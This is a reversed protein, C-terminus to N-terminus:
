TRVGGIVGATGDTTVVRDRGGRKALYLAADAAAVLEPHQLMQAGREAVGISATVRAASGPVALDHVAARIREATTSADRVDTERLLVAIEEGGYRYATDTARLTGQVAAAAARLAADGAQHGHEDNLRKFHDLDVMLFSLPRGYRASRDWEVKLDAELRRRNPLQTLADMDALERVASHLRASELAAAATSLLAELAHDADEDVEPAAVELVGVVMGALVMPYARVEDDSAQRAEAFSTAVSRPVTTGVAPVRGHPDSSCRAAFLAGDEGRVWLTVPAGVLDVAASGVTESVYRVSLSGSVERAVRVVAELRAALLTLRADRAVALEQSAALDRALAGLAAGMSDLEAVETPATRATLDGARLADITALLGALPGVVTRTLRRRRALAREAGLGTLALNLGLVMTLAARQHERAADRHQVILTTASEDAERYTEFLTRGRVLFASLTGDTRAATSLRLRSAEDAWVNWAERTVMVDVVRTAIDPDDVGDRVLSASALDAAQLGTEYPGLFAPDGTALWGRLSTEQDLMAIRLLRAQRTLDNSRDAQPQVSLLLYGVSAVSVSLLLGLTTLMMRHARLLETLLETRAPPRHSDVLPGM